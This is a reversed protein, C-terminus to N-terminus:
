PGYACSVAARQFVSERPASVHVIALRLGEFETRLRDFYTRYWSSDRLSGDVLVNKGAQLGALTLIESIFGAEKNTLEGALEPNQEIYLHFEPLYRRIEDPDVRVFALLPFLGRDVLTRMTYSKGAGMAGATFVIWPETPTTCVEGNKDTIVAGNLFENVVADQFRQREYTYNGHYSYDLTERIHAFQGYFKRDNSRHNEESSCVVSFRRKLKPFTSAETQELVQHFREWGGPAFIEFGHTDNSIRCSYDVKRQVLSVSQATKSFIRITHDDDIYRGTEQARREVRSFITGLEAVVHVLAIKLLPFESRLQTLYQQYWAVHYLASDLVVNRGSQLAALTLTEAIYGCEKQTLSDILDPADEIYAQYEPL